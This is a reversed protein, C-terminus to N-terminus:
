LCLCEYAILFVKLRGCSLWNLPFDQHGWHKVLKRLFFFGTTQVLDIDRSWSSFFEPRFLVSVSVPLSKDENDKTLLMLWLLNYSFCFVFLQLGGSAQNQLAVGLFFINFFSILLYFACSLIRLRFRATNGCHQFFGNTAKFFPWKNSFFGNTQFFSFFFSFFGNVVGIQSFFFFDCHLFLIPNKEEGKQHQEKKCHLVM